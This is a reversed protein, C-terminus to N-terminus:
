RLMLASLAILHAAIMAGAVMGLIACAQRRIQASHIGAVHIPHLAKDARARPISPVATM